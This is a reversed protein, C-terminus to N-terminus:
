LVYQIEYDLPDNCIYFKKHKQDSLPHFDVKPAM